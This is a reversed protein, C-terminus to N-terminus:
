RVSVSLIVPDLIKNLKKGRAIVQVIAIVM